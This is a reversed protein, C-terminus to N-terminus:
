GGLVRRAYAAAGMVGADDGLKAAKVDFRDRYVPMVQDRAAKKVGHVWLDEMAEVMGGGLVIVDPCLLHVCNVVAAGIVAAAEEVVRRVAADGKEISSALAGSKIDAIDTGVDRLLNPADGRQALKAAEAAISLRSAIAEVTGAM